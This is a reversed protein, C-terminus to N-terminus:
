DYLIRIDYKPVAVAVVRQNEIIAAIKERSSVDKRWIEEILEDRNILPVEDKSFIYSM